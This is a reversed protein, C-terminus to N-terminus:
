CIEPYSKDPDIKLEKVANNLVKKTIKKQAHLKRLATYAIHEANIEFYARLDPRDESLGFGDTGLATFSGPFWSSVTLPIAKMYDSAAIFLGPGSGVSEEIFSKQQKKGPNLRNVREVSRANDYLAKYSTVSWVDAYLGYNSKLIDAAKLVENLIAGSGMLNLNHKNNRPSRIKYMGRIIGQRVSKRRPIAPMKYKENMVTIYYILDKGQQYMQEMGDRIIVAM